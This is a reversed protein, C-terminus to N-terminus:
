RQLVLVHAEYDVRSAVDREFVIRREAIVAYALPLSALLAAIAWPNLNDARPM